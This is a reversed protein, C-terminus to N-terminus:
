LFQNKSAYVHPNGVKKKGKEQSADSTIRNTITYYYYAHTIKAINLHNKPHNIYQRSWSKM